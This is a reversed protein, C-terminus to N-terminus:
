KSKAVMSVLPRAISVSIHASKRNKPKPKITINVDQDLDNLFRMLRDTSFGSAKGNLLNSVNSQSLGLLHAIETQKLKSTQVLRKIQIMLMTKAKLEDANELGLDDFINDSSVEYDLNDMDEGKGM